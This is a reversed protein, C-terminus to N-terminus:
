NKMGTAIYKTLAEEALEKTKFTGIQKRKYAARYTNNRTFFIAGTGFKRKNSTDSQMRKGTKNFLDLAQLAKERTNYQGIM